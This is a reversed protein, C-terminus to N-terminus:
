RMRDPPQLLHACWTPHKAWAKTFTLASFLVPDTSGQRAAYSMISVLYCIRDRTQNDLPKHQQSM